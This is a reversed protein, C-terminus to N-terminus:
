ESFVRRFVTDVQATHYALSSVEFLANLEEPTLLKKIDVDRELFFMLRNDYSQAEEDEADLHAPKDPDDPDIGFSKWVRMANRQVIRYADERSVGKQTLFLLVRQADHIGGFKDIHEKMNAPYIVLKEVVSALRALAFDLTVTADPGIMR